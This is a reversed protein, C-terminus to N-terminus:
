FRGNVDVGGGDAMAADAPNSNDTAIINGGTLRQVVDGVSMIGRNMEGESVGQSGKTARSAVVGQNAAGLVPILQEASPMPKVKTTTNPTATGPKQRKRKQGPAPQAPTPHPQTQRAPQRKPQAKKLPQAPTGIQKVVPTPAQIQQLEPKREPTSQAVFNSDTKLVKGILMKLVRVEVESFNGLLMKLQAVEGDDFPLDASQSKPSRIGLLTELQEIAFQRIKANVSNLIEPRASNPAFIDQNVLTKFLNAEEIRQMASNMVDAAYEEGNQFDAPLGDELNELVEEANGDYEGAEEDFDYM